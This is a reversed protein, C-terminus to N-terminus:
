KSLETSIMESKVTSESPTEEKSTLHSLSTKFSAYEREARDQAYGYIKQIKGSLQTLDGRLTEIEDESIRGWTSKIKGKIETWNGKVTNTNM